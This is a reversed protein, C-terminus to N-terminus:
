YLNYNYQIIRSVDTEKGDVLQPEFVIKKAAEIAKTTLGFPLSKVAKCASVKKSALFVCRLRVTGTVGFYRAMEAYGPSPKRLLILRRKIPKPKEDSTTANKPGNGIGSGFGGGSGTGGGRGGSVTKTEIKASKPQDNTPKIADAFIRLSGFFQDAEKPDATRGLHYMLNVRDATEIWLFRHHYVEIETFRCDEGVFKGIKVSTCKKSHLGAFDYILPKLPGYNKQWSRVWYSGSDDKASYMLVNEFKSEQFNKSPIDFSFENPKETITKWGPKSTITESNDIVQARANVFVLVIFSILVLIRM